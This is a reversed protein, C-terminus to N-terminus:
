NNNKIEQNMKEILTAFYANKEPNSLILKSYIDKAQEYYGQEAYIEALTETYLDFTDQNSVEQQPADAKAGFKYKVFIKDDTKRVKDYEEQSFYDGGIIHIRRKPEIEVKEEEVSEQIYKKLLKEVEKDAYDRVQLQRFKTLKSADSIYLSAESLHSDVWEEGMDALRECIVLRAQAYWPYLNVVGTLEDLNLKKLDVFEAMKKGIQLLEM